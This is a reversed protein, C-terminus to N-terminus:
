DYGVVRWQGDIRGFQCQLPLAPLSESFPSVALAHGSRDPRLLRLRCGDFMPRLIIAEPPPAEVRYDGKAMVELLRSREGSPLFDEAWGTAISAARLGPELIKLVDESRRGILADRLRAYLRRLGPEDPVGGGLPEAQWPLLPWVQAKFLDLLDVARDHLETFPEQFHGDHGYAVNLPRREGKPFPLTKRGARLAGALFRLDDIVRRGGESDSGFDELRLVALFAEIRQLTLALRDPM